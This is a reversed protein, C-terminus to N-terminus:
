SLAALTTNREQHSKFVLHGAFAILWLSFLSVAIAVSVPSAMGFAPMFLALQLVAVILGYGALWAPLRRSTLAAIMAVLLWLGGFLAVGFLEGIGGGYSNIATFVTEITSRAAVDSAGDAVAYSTALVPMVTLWRLIGLGRTIASLTGFAVIMAAMPGKYNAVRWAVVIAVPAIALSYLLYLGYGLALAPPAAANATLQQAAANRLSAPWGFAPGLVAIPAFALLAELVFFVAIGIRLPQSMPPPQLSARSPASSSNFKLSASM